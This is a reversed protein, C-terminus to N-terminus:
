MVAVFHSNFERIFLPASFVAELGCMCQDVAASTSVSFPHMCRKLRRRFSFSTSLSLLLFLYLFDRKMWKKQNGVKNKNYRHAAHQEGIGFANKLEWFDGNTKEPNANEMSLMCLDSYYSNVVVYV